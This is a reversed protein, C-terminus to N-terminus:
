SNIAMDTCLFYKSHFFCNRFNNMTLFKFCNPQSTTNRLVDCCLGKLLIGIQLPFCCFHTLIKLLNQSTIFLVTLEKSGHHNCFLTFMKKPKLHQNLVLSLSYVLLVIFVQHQGRPLISLGLSISGFFTNITLGFIMCQPFEEIILVLLCIKPM